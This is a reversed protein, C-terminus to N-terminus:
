VLGGSRGSVATSAIVEMVGRSATHTTVWTAKEKLTPVANAVAVGTGAASLLDIDNEADGVAITNERAAGMRLLAARLGSAKNIGRPLIMVSGLNLITEANVGIEAITERIVHDYSALTAVIVRGLYLPGVKRRRLANLFEPSPAAALLDEKRTATEYLLAGNEAVILHFVDHEPFASKLDDLERGTVLVLRNGHERFRWLANLLDNSVRGHEALTGDYDSALTM